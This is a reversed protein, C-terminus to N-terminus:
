LSHELQKQYTVYLRTGKFMNSFQNAMYFPIHKTHETHETKTWIAQFFDM